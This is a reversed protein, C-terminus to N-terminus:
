FDFDAAEFGWVASIAERHQDDRDSGNPWDGERHSLGFGSVGEDWEFQPVTALVHIAQRHAALEVLHISRGGDTRADRRTSPELNAIASDTLGGAELGLTHIRASGTRDFHSGAHFRGTLFATTASIAITPTSRAVAVATASWASRAVAM